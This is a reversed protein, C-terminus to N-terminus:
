RTHTFTELFIIMFIIIKLNGTSETQLIELCNPVSNPLNPAIHVLLNTNKIPSITQFNHIVITLVLVLRISNM